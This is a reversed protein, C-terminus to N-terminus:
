FLSMQEQEQGFRRIFSFAEDTGCIIGHKACEDRLVVMLAGSSPSLCEYMNGYANIYRSKVGPFGEDLRAYFHERSGERMTVGFGFCVIAAVGARVCYGLLGRLNEETDNIFPLIPSLWVVTPIGAERFAELAEVREATSSVNPEIKRCLAEDYTTLTMEVVCRAKENISKLIDIDRLIGASKTLIALGFGYREILRFCQRTIELTESFPMYSDCMSGTSIMCRQRRRRLQGELIEVAGRKIEIDEFMHNIHYCASRSDCYICGHVCGRFLNIGNNPSLITKYDKYHMSAERDFLEVVPRFQICSM